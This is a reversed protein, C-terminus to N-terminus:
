EQDLRLWKAEEYTPLEELRIVSLDVIDAGTFDFVERDYVGLVEAHNLIFVNTIRRGDRLVATVIHGGPLTQPIEKLRTSLSAHIRRRAREIYHKKFLPERPTQHEVATKFIKDAQRYMWVLFPLFLVLWTGFVRKAWGADLMGPVRDADLLVTRLQWTWFFAAVAFLLIFGNIAVLWADVAREQDDNLRKWIQEKKRMFPTLLIFWSGFVCVSWMIKLETVRITGFLREILVTWVLSALILSGAFWVIWGLWFGFGYRDKM